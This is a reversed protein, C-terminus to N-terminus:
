VDVLVEELGRVDRDIPGVVLECGSERLTEALQDILAPEQGPPTELRIRSKGRGQSEYVFYWGKAKAEGATTQRTSFRGEVFVPLGAFYPLHLLLSGKFAISGIGLSFPVLVGGKRGLHNYLGLLKAVGDEAPASRARVLSALLAAIDMPDEGKWPHGLSYKRERAPHEERGGASEGDGGSLAELRDIAGPDSALGKAELRAAMGAREREDGEGGDGGRLARRIRGLRSAEPKLGEALSALLALRSAADDPLGLKALLSAERGAEQALPHLVITSSGAEIKARFSMGPALAREARAVVERDGIRLRWLGPGMEALVRVSVVVGTRLQAGSGADISSKNIGLRPLGMPGTGTESAM